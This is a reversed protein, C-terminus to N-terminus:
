NQRIASVTSCACCMARTIQFRAGPMGSRSPHFGQPPDLVACYAIESCPVALVPRTPTLPGVPTRPASGQSKRSGIAASRIAKIRFIPVRGRDLAAHSQVAACATATGRRAFPIPLVTVALPGLGRNRLPLFEACQQFHEASAQCSGQANAARLEEAGRALKEQQRPRLM